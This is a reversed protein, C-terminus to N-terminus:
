ALEVTVFPQAYPVGRQRWVNPGLQISITAYTGPRFGILKVYLGGGMGLIPATSSVVTHGKDLIEYRCEPKSYSSARDIEAVLRDPALRLYMEGEVLGRVWTTLQVLFSDHKKSDYPLHQLAKAFGALPAVGTEVVPIVPLNFRFGLSMEDRVYDSSSWTGDPKKERRLFFAIMADCSEIRKELENNIPKGAIEEGDIVDVGLNRIIPLVLKRVWLEHKLYGFAVFIRM